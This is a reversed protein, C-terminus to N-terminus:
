SRQWQRRTWKTILEQSSKRRESNWSTVQSQLQAIVNNADSNKKQLQALASNLQQISDNKVSISDNKEALMTKLTNITEDENKASDGVTGTVATGGVISPVAVTSKLKGGNTDGGSGGFMWPYRGSVFYMGGAIVTFTMTFGVAYAIMTKM